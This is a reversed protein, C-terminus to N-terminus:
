CANSDGKPKLFADYADLSPASDPVALYDSASAMRACLVAANDLNLQGDRLAANMAAVATEFGHESNLEALLRLSDRREAGKTNDIYEQLLEPIQKRVPSQEWARPRRSLLKLTASHDITETRKKGFRRRHTAVVEGSKDLIRIMHAGIEIIVPVKVLDPRASYTHHGDLTIHGYKNTKTTKFRCANFESLPLEGLSNLDDRFLEMQGVEKKYHPKDSLTASREILAENFLVIDDVEPVPVFLHSRQTFVQREVNGKEHGSYPNCFMSKFGYHLEFQQFLNTKHVTDMIKKGIGTANDFIVTHPVGGIHAFVDKLGQCVCEATEGYFVQAYGVNSYPFSVTLMHWRETQGGYIVDVDGFDVQATGPKWELPLFGQSAAKESLRMEERLEKVKRQVIEYSGTFGQEEQLREFIRQATHRQKRWVKKDDELIGRIFGEHPDLKSPRKQKVPPAPSFDTQNIYKRVTKRDLKLERAIYSISEGKRYREKIDQIQPM